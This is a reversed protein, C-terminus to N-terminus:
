LHKRFVGTYQDTQKSIQALDVDKALPMKRTHIQLVALRGEEDPPPVYVWRDFRGPRLLAADILDPRNTAALVQWCKPM